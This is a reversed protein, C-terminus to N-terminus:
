KRESQVPRTSPQTSAGAMLEWTAFGLREVLGYRQREGNQQLVAIELGKENEYFAVSTPIGGCVLGGGRPTMVFDPVNQLGRQTSSIRFPESAVPPVHNKTFCAAYLASNQCYALLVRDQSLTATVPVVRAGNADIGSLSSGHIPGLFSKSGSKSSSLYLRFSLTRDLEDVIPACTLTFEGQTVTWFGDNSDAAQVSMSSYVSILVVFYISTHNFHM